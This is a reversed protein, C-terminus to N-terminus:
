EEPLGDVRAQLVAKYALTDQIQENNVREENREMKKLSDYLDFLEVGEKGDMAQWYVKKVYERLDAITPSWKNNIVWKELAIEAVRYPIDQLHAFWLQMAQQNPLIKEKPYYTRIASALIAFEQKTM